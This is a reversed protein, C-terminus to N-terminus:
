CPLRKELYETTLYTNVSTCTPAILRGPTGVVKTSTLPLKKQIVQLLLEIQKLSQSRPALGMAAMVPSTRDLLQRLQQKDGDIAFIYETTPRKGVAKGRGASKLAALAGQVMEGTCATVINFERGSQIFDATKNTADLRDGKAGIDYIKASRDVSKVGAIFGGMRSQKCIPLNLLDLALVGLQQGPFFRKAARAAAQGAAFTQKRESATLFPAKAPPNPKIVISIIPIGAKQADLVPKVAAAPDAPAYIIGDLDQAIWDNVCNIGLQAQGKQDCAILEINKQKAWRKAWKQLAVQFPDTQYFVEGIRYRPTAESGAAAVSAGAIGLCAVTIVAVAWRVRAHRM